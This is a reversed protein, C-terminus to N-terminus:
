LILPSVETTPGASPSHEMVRGTDSEVSCRLGDVFFLSGVDSQGQAAVPQMVATATM